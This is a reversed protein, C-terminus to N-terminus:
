ALCGIVKRYIEYVINPTLPRSGHYPVDRFTPGKISSGVAHRNLQRHPQFQITIIPPQSDSYHLNAHYKEDTMPAQVWHWVTLGNIGLITVEHYQHHDHDNGECIGWSVFV